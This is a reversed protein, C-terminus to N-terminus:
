EDGKMLPEVLANREFDWHTQRKLDAIGLQYDILASLANIKAATLRQQAQALDNRNITGVRFRQLSIDYSKQAVAASKELVGIRSEAVRIRNLLDMTEQRVQQHVYDRQGSSNRYEIEAAQVNLSNSGWDFIPVSLTLSASRSRNQDRFIDRFLTDTKNVGYRAAIDFRLNNRSRASAVDLERLRIDRDARLADSRFRLANAIARASDILAPTYTMEAAPEIDDESPIGLLLRFSNKAQAVEREGNLSDNRSSALDVESQLVDVEPILGGTFKSQATRFSEENQQVQEKVIALRQMQQYLTYFSETVRYVLDLQAGVFDSEAQELSIDAREANLKHMNTTLLPQRLELSFDGFYNRLLTSSGSLGASQERGFLTQTFSLTGGTFALPQDLVLASQYTTSQLQYYEYSGTLPNFQQSLSESYNPATVSLTLSTWQSRRASQARDRAARYRATVDSAVLGKEVARAISEGLTYRHLRQGFSAASLASVLGCLLLFARM